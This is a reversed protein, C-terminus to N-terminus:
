RARRASKRRRPSKAAPTPATAARHRYWWLWGFFGVFGASLVALLLSYHWAGFIVIATVLVILTPYALWERRPAPASRTRPKAM